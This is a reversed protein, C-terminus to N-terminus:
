PNALQFVGCRAIGQLDKKWSLIKLGSNEFISEVDREQGQGIEIFVYGDPKLLRVIEPALQRYCDLGDEGGDLASVPDFQKVEQELTEIIQHPIYPPNSVIIDFQGTLDQGWSTQMFQVRQTLGLANANHQAVALAASSMDVGVGTAQPYEKLLSLLLCGSGVGMDLIYYVQNSDPLTNRVAEILTESDPRPDLVDQTVKFPLGWFERVGIIKSVPEREARRHLLQEYTAIQDQTCQHDPERLLFETPQNLVHQLLLRADLKHSSIGQEKLYAAAEILM